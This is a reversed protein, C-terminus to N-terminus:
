LYSSIYRVSNLTKLLLNRADANCDNGMPVVTVTIGIDCLYQGECGVDGFYDLEHLSYLACTHDKHTYQIEYLQTVSIYLIPVLGPAFHM